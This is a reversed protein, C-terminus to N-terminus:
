KELVTGSRISIRIKNGDKDQGFRVRTPKDSKNDLIMVNSIHISAEKEIIGAQQQTARQHRKVINVGAVIVRELEPIVKLVSGRAGKDKGTTIVVEDGKKIRIGM